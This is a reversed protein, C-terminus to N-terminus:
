PLEVHSAPRITVDTWEGLPHACTEDSCVRVRYSAPEVNEFLARGGEIAQVQVPRDATALEALRGDTRVDLSGGVADVPRPITFRRGRVLEITTDLEITPDPLFHAHGVTATVRVPGEPAGRLRIRRELLEVGLPGHENGHGDRESWWHAEVRALRLDPVPDTSRVTAVLDIVPRCEVAVDGLDLPEAIDVDIRTAEDPRAASHAFTWRDFGTPRLAVLYAGFDIPGLDFRDLLEGALPEDDVAALASGTLPASEHEDAWALTVPLLRLSATTPLLGGDDCALTGTVHAAPILRVDLTVTETGAIVLETTRTPMEGDVGIAVFSDKRRPGALTGSVRYTGPPLGESRAEGARDTQLEVREKAAIMEETRIALPAPETREVVLDVGFVHEDQDDRAVARVAAGDELTITTARRGEDGLAVEAEAELYEPHAAIVRWEGDGLGRLTARGMADTTVTLVPAMALPDDEVPWAGVTAGAVGFRDRARVHIRVEAEGAAEPKVSFDIERTDGPVLDLMVEEPEHSIDPRCVPRLDVHGDPVVMEYYLRDDHRRLPAHVREFRSGGRRRVDDIWPGPEIMTARVVCDLQRDGDFFVYGHLRAPATFYWNLHHRQGSLTADLIVEHGDIAEGDHDVGALLYGPHPELRAVWRGRALALRVPFNSTRDRIEFGTDLHTLVITHEPLPPEAPDVRADIAVPAGRGVAVEIEVQDDASRVTLRPPPRLPDDNPDVLTPEALRSLEVRYVGTRTTELEVRGAHDTTGYLRHDSYRQVLRERATAARATGAEIWILEVRVDPLPGASEARVRVGITAAGGASAISLACTLALVTRRM